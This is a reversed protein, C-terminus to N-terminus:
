KTEFPVEKWRSSNAEKSRDIENLVSQYEEQTLWNKEVTILGLMAAHYLETNSLKNSPINGTKNITENGNLNENKKEKINEKENKNINGNVMVNENIKKNVNVKESINVKENVMVAPEHNILNKLLLYSPRKKLDYSENLINDIKLYYKGAVSAQGKQRKKGNEYDLLGFDKLELKAGNVANKSLGTRECIMDRSVIIIGTDKAESRAFYYLLYGLMVKAEESVDESEIIHPPLDKIYITKIM